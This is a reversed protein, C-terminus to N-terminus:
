FTPPLFVPKKGKQEKAKEELERRELELRRSREISERELRIREESMKKAQELSEQKMRIKEQDMRIKEQDMRAKEEEMKLRQEDMKKDDAKTGPVDEEPPLGAYALKFIFQGGEDGIGSIPAGKPLQHSDNSVKTQLDAFVQGVATYRSQNRELIQLLYFAFTSHNGKGTDPVPYLGGSTIIWRSKDAYLEMIAAQSLSGLSRTKGMLSEGFCSDAITLVHKAKMSGILSQIESNSIYSSNDGPEADSPVWDGLKIDKDYEGHGAYYIVLNDKETLKKALDRLAALINKRTAQEDPLEKVREEKFGYREKLVKALALADPRAAELQMNAPFKPYKNIGVVLAWYNGEIAIKGPARKTEITTGREPDARVASVPAFGILLAVTLILFRLVKM